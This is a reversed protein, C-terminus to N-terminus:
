APPPVSLKFRTTALDLFERRSIGLLAAAKGSSITGLDYLRVLLAERALAELAEKTQGIQDLLEEPYEIQLVTM